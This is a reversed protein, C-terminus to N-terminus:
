LHYHYAFKTIRWTRNEHLHKSKFDGNLLLIFFFITLPASSWFANHPHFTLQYDPMWTSAKIYFSNVWLLRLGLGARVKCKHRQLRPRPGIISLWEGFSRVQAVIFWTHPAQLMFIQSIQTVVTESIFISSWAGIFVLSKTDGLHTPFTLSPADWFKFDLICRLSNLRIALDWPLLKNM